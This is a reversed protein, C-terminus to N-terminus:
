VIGFNSKICSELYCLNNTALNIIKRLDLAHILPVARKGEHYTYDTYDLYLNKLKVKGKRGKLNIESLPVDIKLFNVIGELDLLFLDEVDNQAACDILNNVTTLKNIQNRLDGWDDKSFIQFSSGDTDYCLFVDWCLSPYKDVCFHRMWLYQKTIQTITEANKIKVILLKNDKCLEYFVELTDEDVKSTFDISFDDCIKKIIEEYFYRETDGEMILAVGANYKNDNM